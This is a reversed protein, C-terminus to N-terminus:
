RDINASACVISRNELRFMRSLDNQLQTVTSQDPSESMAIGSDTSQAGGSTSRDM